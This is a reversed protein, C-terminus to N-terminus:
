REPTAMTVLRGDPYPYDPRPEAPRRESVHKQAWKIIQKANKVAADLDERRRKQGSLGRSQPQDKWQQEIKVKAREASALQAKAELVRQEGVTPLPPLGLLEPKHRQWREMQQYVGARL